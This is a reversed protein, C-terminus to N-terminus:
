CLEELGPPMSADASSVQCGLRGDCCVGQRHECIFDRGQGRFLRHRNKMRPTPLEQEADLGHAADPGAEDDGRPPECSAIRRTRAFISPLPAGRPGSADGRPPECSAIWRFKEASLDHISVEGDDWEVIHQGSNHFKVITGPFCEQEAPWWMALRRSLLEEGLMEEGGGGEADGGHKVARRRRRRCGRQRVGVTPTDTTEEDEPEYEWRVRALNEWHAEGDDYQWVGQPDTPAV